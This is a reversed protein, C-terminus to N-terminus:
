YTRCLAQATGSTSEKEGTSEDPLLLPESGSLVERGKPTVYYVGNVAYLGSGKIMSKLELQVLSIVNCQKIFKRWFNM